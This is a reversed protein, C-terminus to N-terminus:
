NLKDCHLILNTKPLYNTVRGRLCTNAKFCITTLYLNIIIIIIITLLVTMYSASASCYRCEIRSMLPFLQFLPHREDPRCASKKLNLDLAGSPIVTM